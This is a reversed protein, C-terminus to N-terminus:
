REQGNSGSGAKFLQVFAGAIGFVTFIITLWPKTHLWKDLGYGIGYGVVTSVPFVFGLTLAEYLQGANKKKDDPM